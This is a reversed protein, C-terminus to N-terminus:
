IIIKILLFKHYIKKAMKKEDSFKTSDKELNKVEEANILLHYPNFINHTILFILSFFTFGKKKIKLVM